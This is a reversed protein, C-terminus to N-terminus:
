GMYYINYYFTKNYTHNIHKCSYSHTHKACSHTADIPINSKKERERMKERKEKRAEEEEERKEKKERRM